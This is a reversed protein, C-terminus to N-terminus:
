GAQEVVERQERFMHLAGKMMEQLSPKGAQSKAPFYVGGFYLNGSPSLFATPALGVPLKKVTEARQLRDAVKPQLDYDVKVAVFQDNIFKALEPQSYSERDMQSCYPCWGAGLDLLIPRDLDKAKKFAEEGWPYWDVLEQSARQLYPSSSGKLHNLRAAGPAAMSSAAGAAMLACLLTSVMHLLRRM